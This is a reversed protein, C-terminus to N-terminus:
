TGKGIDGGDVETFVLLGVLWSVAALWCCRENVLWRDGAFVAAEVVLTVEVNGSGFAPENVLTESVLEGGDGVLVIDVEDEEDEEM